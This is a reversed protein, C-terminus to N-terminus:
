LPHFKPGAFRVNSAQRLGALIRQREEAAVELTYVGDRSPGDAIRAHLRLLLGRIDEERTSADFVVVISAAAGRPTAPAALTHYYHPPSPRQWVCALLALLATQAIVAGRLWPRMAQWRGIVSRLVASPRASSELREIRAQLRILAHDAAPDSCEAQVLARLADLNALDRKCSVCRALHREVRSHEVGSLTGNAFWPLLEAAESHASDDFRFLRM